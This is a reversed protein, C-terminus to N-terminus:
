IIKYCFHYLGMKWTSIVINSFATIIVVCQHQMGRAAVERIPEDYHLSGAMGGRTPVGHESRAVV